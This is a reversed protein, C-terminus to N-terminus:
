FNLPTYEPDADGAVSTESGSSSATATRNDERNGSWAVSVTEAVISVSSRKSGDKAEYRDHNLRGVVRVKAGKCLSKDNYAKLVNEVSKPAVYDNASTWMIIDFFGTANSGGERGANDIAISFRLLNHQEMLEPDRTLRGELTVMNGTNIM